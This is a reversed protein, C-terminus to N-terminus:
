FYLLFVHHHLNNARYYRNHICSPLLAIQGPIDSDPNRTIFTVQYRLSIWYPVNDAFATNSVAPEYRICEDAMNQSAPPQWYVAPTGLIDKLINHLDLRQGM